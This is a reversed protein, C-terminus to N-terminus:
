ECIYTLYFVQNGRIDGSIILNDCMDLAKIAHDHGHLTRQCCKDDDTINYVEVVKAKKVKPIPAIVGNL